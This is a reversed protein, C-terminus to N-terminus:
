RPGTTYRDPSNQGPKNLEIILELLDRLSRTELYCKRVRERAAAGLRHAEDPNCLLRDIAQTFLAPDGPDDLLLGNQGNEIQDQIGGVRSAIVPRQKWMAETVTLGFGEHLSKQVIIAAHRQLANVIAANEETDTMPLMALHIRARHAHPLEHWATFTEHFIQPGEPDDAVAQVSPGALLLEAGSDSGQALWHSFGRLVGVPDKLPDWRSIQVILPTTAATPPGCRIVDAHRNVRDMTGDSRRFEFNPYAPMPGGLLGTHVLITRVTDDDLPQNKATFADISPPSVVSRAHNLQAPIYARRSFIRRAVHELYPALFAWGTATEENETDNGIHCRWVIRAGHAHLADAMGLTQPDHLFVIDGPQILVLLEALNDRLVAEYISRAQEDLASGDGPEGHLAHHLRKTVRFFEPTGSIVLWRTRLGLGRCYGLLSPLIEAVGGGAATSNIHWVIRGDLVTQLQKALRQITQVAGPTAVGEYRDISLTHLEVETLQPM